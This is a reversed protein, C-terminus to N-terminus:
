GEFVLELHRIVAQDAYYFYDIDWERATSTVREWYLGNMYQSHVEYDISM